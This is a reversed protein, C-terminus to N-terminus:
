RRVAESRGAVLAAGLDARPASSTPSDGSRGPARAPHVRRTTPLELAADGMPVARGAAHGRRHRRGGGVLLAELRAQWAARAGACRRRRRSTGCCRRAPPWTGGSTRSAARSSAPPDAARLGRQRPRPATRVDRASPAEARPLRRGAAGGDPEPRRRAGRDRGHLGRLGREVAGVGSGAGPARATAQRSRRRAPRHGLRAARAPAQRVAGPHPRDLRGPDRMAASSPTATTGSLGASEDASEHGPLSADLADSRSAMRAPRTSRALAPHDQDPARDGRRHLRGAAARRDRDLDAGRRPRRGPPRRGPQVARRHTEQFEIARRRREPDGETLRTLWKSGM